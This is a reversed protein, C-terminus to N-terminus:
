KNSSNSSKFLCSSIISIWLSDLFTVDQLGFFKVFTDDWLCYIILPQILVVLIIMFVFGSLKLLTEM